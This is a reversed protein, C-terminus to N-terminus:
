RITQDSQYPTPATASTPPTSYAAPTPLAPSAQPPLECNKEAATRRLLKEETLTNEYDSRYSLNGIIVGGGGGESAREMLNSLENERTLLGQLRTAMDKCHYVSYRGPDVTLAGVGDSM